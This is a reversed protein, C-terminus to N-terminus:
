NTSRVTPMKMLPLTDHRTENRTYNLHTDRYCHIALEAKSSRRKEGVIVDPNTQLPISLSMASSMVGSGIM